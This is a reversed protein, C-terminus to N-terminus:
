KTNRTTPEKIKGEAVLEKYDGNTLYKWSLISQRSIERNPYAEQLDLVTADITNSIIVVRMLSRPNELLVHAEIVKSKVKKPAAIKM